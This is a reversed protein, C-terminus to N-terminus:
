LESCAEEFLLVAEQYKGCAAERRGQAVLDEPSTKGESTRSSRLVVSFLWLMINRKCINVFVVSTDKEKEIGNSCSKDGEM